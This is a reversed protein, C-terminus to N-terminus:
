RSRPTARRAASPPRRTCRRPWSCCRPRARAPRAHRAVDSSLHSVNRLAIVEPTDPVQSRPACRACRTPWRTSRWRTSTATRRRASCSRPWTTLTSEGADDPWSTGALVRSQVTGATRRVLLEPTAGSWGTSRTPGAPRTAGALGRSCSGPTWRPTTSPWCTTRSRPRTWRRRGADPAGGRGGGGPLRDVPLLGDAYRLTGSPRVPSSRACRRRGTATRSSPSGRVARRAPRGAGAAGGAGLGALRRRLHLQRLRGPRLRAGRGRRQVGTRDTFSAGGPTRRPSGTRGPPPSGPWRAGASWGTRAACGACRATTPCCTSCGARSRGVAQDARGIRGADPRDDRKRSYSAARGSARGARPPASWM